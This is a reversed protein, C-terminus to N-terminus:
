GCNTAVTLRRANLITEPSQLDTELRELGFAAQLVVLEGVVAHFWPLALDAAPLRGAVDVQAMRLLPRLFEGNRTVGAVVIPGDGKVLSNSHERQGLHVLLTALRSSEIM